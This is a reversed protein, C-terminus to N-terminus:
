LGKLFALSVPVQINVHSSEDEIYFNQIASKQAAKIIAAINIQGSGLAVDNDVDTGGSFDGVVGKRLDKVHMLKFRSPYKKLLEVPDKGPHVVWLIDMEFSVYDPNTNTVLYDFFTGKEFPVFEYGHNHHCFTLGYEEKFIKGTKNYDEVTKKATELTFPIKADHPIWAVRVYSAGLTKAIEGVQKTKNVADDYSTGYSTCHMGREDLWKKIEVATKGFLNSFEINTIGLSKITDLTASFNNQFSNRYTYSVVGPTAKLLKGTTNDGGKLVRIKINKFYAENGHDQLLIRGKAFLGFGPLAKYKSDAVLAKFAESGREYAVVMIGNLWHEVHSGKSVIRANNWLGIPTAPKNYIAPILDYLSGVTRNGNKGLKADPHRADDLLQFELGIASKPDAPIPQAADVFYKIGSNAGETIKFDVSLEFDSYDNLTIIDGGNTSEKGGSSEVMLTGNEVKWGKAPFGPIFAGKWGNTTKGDFLLKWGDKKEKATLQNDQAFGQACLVLFIICIPLSIKKM